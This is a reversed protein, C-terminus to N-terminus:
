VAAGQKRTEGTFWVLTDWAPTCALCDQWKLVGSLLLVSLALMSAVVPEVGIQGGFVQLQISVSYM